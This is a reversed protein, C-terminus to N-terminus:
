LALDYQISAFATLRNVPALEAARPADPNSADFAQLPGAVYASTGSFAYDIGVRWSLAQLSPIRDSVTLRLRVQPPATPTVPFGGDNARDALRRGVLTTAIGVVPLSGPLDYSIRANGFISPSAPLSVAGDPTERRTYAGTVSFGYRLEGTQGEFRGNYGYNDIRSVNAYQYIDEGVQQLAIMDKWWTRFVGFLLRQAGWKQELVLEGGRVVESRLDPAELQSSSTFFMEYFTPARFAEAYIAKFSGGRWTELSVAARPSLRKGGRPDADFRVGGNLHLWSTPTWRQQLYAAWPLETLKRAGVSGLMQGTLQDQQDTKGAVYRVRGDVGLMTTLRENGLWDYVGQLELGTWRSIGVTKTICPGGLSLACAEPEASHLPQQYDYSDAYYRAFLGLHETARHRWQVDLQLWRDLEYSRGDDFDQVFQNFGNVYPTARKYTAARLMATVEGLTFRLHGAPVTTYYSHTTRGGWVGPPSNAGFNYPAGASNTLPQPGWEFSPGYQRYVEVQGTIEAQKGFLTLEHGIGAGVRYATGLESTAFSRFAGEKGYSPSLSGEAMVHVGKFASANKTVVNVVALMASGGYLVSGPGLVLEVHDILELPIAAGQEFYATGNWVENMVHGDVVLLVHNGFDSTLLVGRGGVEVSHLPNQTVLGMGLFDIAEDLSRIGYRRMDAATLTVTTAPADSATEASKSAGSVVNENLTGELDEEEASAHSVRPASAVVLLAALMSAHRVKM